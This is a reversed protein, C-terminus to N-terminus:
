LSTTHSNTFPNKFFTQTSVCWVKDLYLFTLMLELILKLFGCLTVDGHLNIHITNLPYRSATMLIFNCGEIDGIERISIVTKLIQEPKGIDSITYAESKNRQKIFAM